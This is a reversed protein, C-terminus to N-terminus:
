VGFFFLCSLFLVGFGCRDIDKNNYHALMLNCQAGHVVVNM